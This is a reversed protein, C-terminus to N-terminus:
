KMCKQWTATSTAAMACTYQSRTATCPSDGHKERAMQKAAEIVNPPVGRLQPNSAIELELYKDMVRDCEPKSVTKSSSSPKKSDPESTAPEGIKTTYPKSPDSSAAPDSKKAAERDARDKPDEEGKLRADSVSNAPVGDAPSPAKPPPEGCAIVLLPALLLPSLVRVSLSGLCSGRTAHGVIEGDGRM